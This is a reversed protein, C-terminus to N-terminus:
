SAEAMKVSWFCWLSHFHLCVISIFVFLALIMCLNVTKVAHILLFTLWIWFQFTFIAHLCVIFYVLSLYFLIM